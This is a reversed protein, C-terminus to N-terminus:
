NLSSATLGNPDGFGTYPVYDGYSLTVSGTALPDMAASASATLGAPDGFGTYPVYDAGVSSYAAAAGILGLAGAFATVIAALKTTTRM